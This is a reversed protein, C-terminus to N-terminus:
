ANRILLWEVYSFDEGAAPRSRVENITFGAARYPALLAECTPAPYHTELFCVTKRPLLGLLAPLLELEAGEVDVKWVLSTPGAERLWRRFDICPVQQTGAAGPGALAGGIGGGSFGATGDRLHVAAAVMEVKGDLLALQSALLPLNAPNAEFCALRAGPFFGAALASFYGCYAGCDAVLAPSFSVASLDYIGDIFLEDFIVLQGPQDLQVRVRQGRTPKIRPTMVGEKGLAVRAAAKAGPIRARLLGLLWLDRRDGRGWALPPYRRLDRLKRSLRSLFDM